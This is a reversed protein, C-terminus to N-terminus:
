KAADKGALPDRFGPLGLKEGILGLAEPATRNALFDWRTPDLAGRQDKTGPGCLQDVTDATHKDIWALLEGVTAGASGDPKTPRAALIARAIEQASPMEDDEQPVGSNIEKARAIVVDYPWHHGPDWHDSEGWAASVDIHGIIGRVGNRAQEATIKVLPIGYLRNWEAYRMAHRELLRGEALWRDRGWEARGMACVHLGRANGQNMAGWAQRNDPVMRVEEGDFDVMTQYSGNRNRELYGVVSTNGGTSETTHQVILQRTPAAANWLQAGMQERYPLLDTGLMGM